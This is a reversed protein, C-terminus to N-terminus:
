ISLNLLVIDSNLVLGSLVLMKLKKLLCIYNFFEELMNAVIKM